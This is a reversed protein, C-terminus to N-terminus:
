PIEPQRQQLFYQLLEVAKPDLAQFQLGVRFGGHSGPSALVCVAVRARCILTEAQARKSPLTAKLMLQTGVPISADAMVGMGGMGIDFSRCVFQTRDALVLHVPTRIM